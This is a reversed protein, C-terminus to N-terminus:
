QKAGVTRKLVKQFKDLGEAIEAESVTLPPIFRLSEYVGATLLLLGEQVCEKSVVGASGAAVSGDLEVGVMLGRGRVDAIPYTRQLARLGAMLQESRARVNDMVKDQEFTDIVACAAACSVANGGYTGGISGNRAASLYEGRTIICSLPYGNAIGKAAVIIDPVVDEQEIAFPTGTRGYGSQVEDAILLCGIEDSISRLEQLFGRPPVVYGGEGQVPEVLIAAVEDTATQQKLMLRLQNIPDMCCNDFNYQGNSAASISCRQCYPFPCVHVGAMTPQFGARYVYKATTLSGAGITRGHFGGQFVIITQRKTVVRALKVANEIAEAGSNSFLVQYPRPFSQPLMADLKDALRLVPQSTYCNIQLHSGKKVQELVAADVRPHCHGLNTVGIGCTFDLYPRPKTTAPASAPRGYVYSGSAHDVIFDALVAVGSPLHESYPHHTVPRAYRSSPSSSATTTASAAASAAPSQSLVSTHFTTSAPQHLRTRSHSLHTAARRLLQQTLSAM